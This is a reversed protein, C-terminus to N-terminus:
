RNGEHSEGEFPGIVHNARRPPYCAAGHFQENTHSESRKGMYAQLSRTDVGDNALKYGGASGAMRSRQKPRISRISRKKEM